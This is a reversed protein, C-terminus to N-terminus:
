GAWYHSILLISYLAFLLTSILVWIQSAVKDKISAGLIFIPFLVLIYRGMGTVSGSSLVVLISTLMYIAYSLRLKKAVVLTTVVAFITFMIDLIFNTKAPNNILSLNHLSFGRGWIKEAAFYAMFNGFKLYLYSFFSTTGLPVLLLSLAKFSILKKRNAQFYEILLPLFLLIGSIRTLAAFFGFIGAILYQKKLTHYFAAITFFLFTAETYVSNLFFATPFILLLFVAIIPDSQPHFEKVLKYLYITTLFAFIASISFGALALNGFTYYSAIKILVPYIPFFVVNSLEDRKKLSYGNQAIDKYWFGDWRSHIASFDLGQTQHEWAPNIWSFAKDPSLILRNNAILVFINIVVLWSFFLLIVKKM